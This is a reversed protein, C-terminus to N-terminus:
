QTLWRPQWPVKSFLTSYCIWSERRKGNRDAGLVHRAMSILKFSTEFFFLISLCFRSLCASTDTFFVGTLKQMSPDLCLWYMESICLGLMTYQISVKDYHDELHQCYNNLSTSWLFLMFSYVLTGPAVIIWVPSSSPHTLIRQWPSKGREM